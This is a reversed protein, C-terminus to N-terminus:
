QCKEEDNWDYESSLGNPIETVNQEKCLMASDMDYANIIWENTSYNGYAYVRDKEDNNVFGIQKGCDSKSIACYPLYTKEDWIIATYGEGQSTTMDALEEKACACLSVILFVNVILIAIKRM